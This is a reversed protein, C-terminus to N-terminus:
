KQLLKIIDNVDGGKQIYVWATNKEEDTMDKWYPDLAIDPASQLRLENPRAQTQEITKQGAMLEASRQYMEKATPTKKNAIENDIWGLLDLNLRLSRERNATTEWWGAIQQRNAAM